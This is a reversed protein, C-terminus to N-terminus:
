KKITGQVETKLSTKIQMTIIIKTKSRQSPIATCNFYSKLSMIEGPSVKFELLVSEAEWTNTDYDHVM